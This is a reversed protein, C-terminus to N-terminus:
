VCPLASLARLSPLTPPRKPRFLSLPRGSRRADTLRSVPLDTRFRARWKFVTREHVGLLRAIDAASVGDAMLLLAQARQAVRHPCSPWALTAEVEARQDPTLALPVTPRGPHPRFAWRTSDIM